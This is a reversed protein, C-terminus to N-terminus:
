IFNSSNSPHFGLGIDGKGQQEPEPKHGDVLVWAPHFVALGLVAEAVLFGDLLAFMAQGVDTTAFGQALGIARYLDRILLCVVVFVVIVLYGKFRRALTRGSGLEMETTRSGYQRYTALAQCLVVAFLVMFVALTAAHLGIGMAMVIAGRDADPGPRTTSSNGSLALGLGVIQVALGALDSWILYIYWGPDILSHEKGIIQLTRGITMYMAMSVFSPGLTLLITAVVFLHASLNGTASSCRIGYGIIEFVCALALPISFNVWRRLLMTFVACGMLSSTFVVILLVSVAQNMTQAPM